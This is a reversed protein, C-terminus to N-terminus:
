LVTNQFYVACKCSFVWASTDNWYLQLVVKNFDCKPMPTRRYIQQMNESFRKLLVGRSPQKQIISFHWPFVLETLRHSFLDILKQIYPQLFSSNIKLMGSFLKTQYYYTFMLILLSPLLGFVFFVNLLKNSFLQILHSSIITFQNNSIIQYYFFNIFPMLNFLKGGCPQQNLSSFYITIKM